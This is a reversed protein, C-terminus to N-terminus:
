SNGKKEEEEEPEQRIDKAQGQDIAPPFILFFGL